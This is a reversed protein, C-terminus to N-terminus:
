AQDWKRRKMSPYAGIDENQRKRDELSSGCSLLCLKDVFRNRMQLRLSDCLVLDGTKSNSSFSGEFAKIEGPICTTILDFKINYGNNGSCHELNNVILAADSILGINHAAIRVACTPNNSLSKSDSLYQRDLLLIGNTDLIMFLSDTITFLKKFSSLGNLGERFKSEQDEIAGNREYNIKKHDNYAEVKAVAVDLICPRFISLSLYRDICIIDMNKYNDTLFSTRTSENERSLHVENINLAANSQIVRFDVTFTNRRVDRILSDLEWSNSCPLDITERLGGRQLGYRSVRRITPYRTTVTNNGSDGSDGAQENHHFLKYIDDNSHDQRQIWVIITRMISINDYRQLQDWAASDIDMDHQPDDLVYNIFSDYGMDQAVKNWSTVEEGKIDLTRGKINVFKVFFDVYTMPLIIKRIMLPSRPSITFFSFRDLPNIRFESVGQDLEVFISPKYIIYDKYANNILFLSPCTRLHEPEMPLLYYCFHRLKSRGTFKMKLSLTSEEISSSDRHRTVNLVDPYFDFVEPSTSSKVFANEMQIYDNPLNLIYVFIKGSCMCCYLLGERYQLGAIMYDSGFDNFGEPTCKLIFSPNLPLSKEIMYRYDKIIEIFGNSKALIMYDSSDMLSEDVLSMSIMRAKPRLYCFAQVNTDINARSNNTNMSQPLVSLRRNDYEFIRYGSAKGKTNCPTSVAILARGAM